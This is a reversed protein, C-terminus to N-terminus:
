VVFAGIIFGVLGGMLLATIVSMIQGGFLQQSLNSTLQKIISQQMVMDILEPNVKGKRHNGFELQGENIDILFYLSLGKSYTPISVDVEHTNGKKYRIIKSEPNFKKRRLVNYTNQEKILFVAYYKKRIKLLNSM